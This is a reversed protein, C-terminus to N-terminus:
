PDHHHEPDEGLVIVRVEAPDSTQVEGTTLTVVATFVYTGPTQPATVTIEYPDNSASGVLTADQYFQVSGFPCPGVVPDTNPIARLVMPTNTLAVWGDVPISLLACPSGPLKMKTSCCAIQNSTLMSLYFTNSGPCPATRQVQVTFTRTQSPLLPSPGGYAPLTLNVLPPVFAVCSQAAGFAVYKVPNGNINQVTIQYNYTSTSGSSSAYTLKNSIVRSCCTPLTICHPIVCHPLAPNEPVSGATFCFSSPGGTSSISVSLNTSQGPNLFPVLNFSGPTFTFGAPANSLSFSSVPQATLNTLCLQYGWTGDALCEINECGIGVCSGAWIKAVTTSFNTLGASPSFFATIYDTGPGGYGAYTFCAVGNSDTLTSYNTVANPGSSITFTVSVGLKPNVNTALTACVAHTTGVNNTALPPALDIGGIAKLGQGRALIYPSGNSGDSAYYTSNTTLGIALVSFNPPWADFAAHTSCAWGSLNTDSMAPAAAFIPHNAVIHADDLCDFHLMFSGLGSLQPVVISNTGLLNYFCSVSYYLGTRNTNSLAFAVGRTVTKDAGSANFGFYAHNANDVGFIIVNGQVVPSWTAATANLVNMAALYGPGWTYCMPDGLIIARYSDFGYGTPGTNGSAPIAAWNTAWVVDVACGPIATQAALAERSAVGNTATEGLILVRPPSSVPVAGLAQHQISVWGMIAALVLARRFGLRLESLVPTDWAPERGMENTMM